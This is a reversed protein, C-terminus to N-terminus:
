GILRRVSEGSRNLAHTYVRRNVAMDHGLIAALDAPEIGEASLLSNWSHRFEHPRPSIGAARCTPLWVDRRWNDLRWLRGTPTPFLWPSDIRKPMAQLLELCTPPIPGVRDHEKERSSDSVVGNWASGSVRFLGDRLNQRDRELALMEGLRLGCDSLMRVMAEYRGACSAFGHMEDWSWVTIKKSAKQIRPDNSRIRMGKFPNLELLDERIADEAMATLTRLINRAGGGSRGQARLMHDILEVTHRRRLQGFPWDKLAVGELSVNEVARLRGRNTYNTRDSRPYREFWSEAYQGVTDRKAPADYAADIADQADRRRKFTGASRRKGDLGTYRAIWREQGSPNTRKIPSERHKPMAPM